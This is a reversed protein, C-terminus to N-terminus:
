SQRQTSLPPCAEARDGKGRSRRPRGGCSRAAKAEVAAAAKREAVAKKRAQWGLTVNSCMLTRKFIAYCANCIAAHQM